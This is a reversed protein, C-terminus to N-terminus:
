DDRYTPLSTETGERRPSASASITRQLALRFRVVRTLLKLHGAITSVTKMKSYGFIRSQLTTPFETIRGGAIDLRALLEVIGRFDGYDTCIGLVSSRRYVRFCSTYTALNHSLVLRYIGSLSKSLFLRWAPVALVFGDKHYPSATVLDTNEDLAPIMRALEVPDYSCDADISCVKETSSAAIGTAIARAIGGNQEHRLITFGDRDGFRRVLHHYTDDTSRDDVLIFNLDLENKTASVLDSLAKDLYPLSDVENYCPIVVSAADKQRDTQEIGGTPVRHTSQQRTGKALDHAQEGPTMAARVPGIQLFDRISQFPIADFYRCLLSRMIGLNRYQRLRSIPGIATIVPQESDLEWPHFYLVFPAEHTKVWQKFRRYMFWSPFQRVYNGGSIPLRCGFLPTTALPFEWLDGSQTQMLTAEDINGHTDRGICPSVYSADYVYNEERLVDMAWRNTGDIHRYAARYGIVAQGGAAELVARCRVIDERFQEKSMEAVSRSYYGASAIEHGESAIREILAPYNAGIWGLTFFTATVDHASLLALTEDINKDLRSEFRHWQKEGALGRFVGRHFYDQLL